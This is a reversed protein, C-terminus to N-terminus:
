LLYFRWPSCVEQVTQTTVPEQCNSFDLRLVAMDLSQVVNFCFRHEPSKWFLTQCTLCLDKQALKIAPSYWKINHLIRCSAM